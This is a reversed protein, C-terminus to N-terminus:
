CKTLNAPVNIVCISYAKKSDLIELIMLGTFVDKIILTKQSEHLGEISRQKKFYPVIMEELYKMSEYRKSFDKENASLCFGQPFKIRPLSQVTKRKYILHTPLFKGHMTNAFIGTICRKDYSGEITISKTSSM